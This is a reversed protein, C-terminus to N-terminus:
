LLNVSNRHSRCRANAPTTLPQYDYQQFNQRLKQNVVASSTFVGKAVVRDYWVVFTTYSCSFIEKYITPFYVWIYNICSVRSYMLTADYSWYLIFEIVFILVAPTSERADACRVHARTSTCYAYYLYISYLVSVACDLVTVTSIKWYSLLWLRVLLFFVFVSHSTKISCFIM